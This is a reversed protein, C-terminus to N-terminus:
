EMANATTKALDATSLFRSQTLQRLVETPMRARNGLTISDRYWSQQEHKLDNAYDKRKLKRQRKAQKLISTMDEFRTILADITAEKATAAEQVVIESPVNSLVRLLLELPNVKQPASQGSIPPDTTIQHSM